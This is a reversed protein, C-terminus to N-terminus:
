KILEEVHELEHMQGNHYTVAANQVRKGRNDIVMTHGDAQTDIPSTDIMHVSRTSEDSLLGGFVSRAKQMLYAIASQRPAEFHERAQEQPTNIM